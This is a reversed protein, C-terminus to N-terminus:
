KVLHSKTLVSVFRRPKRFSRFKDTSHDDSKEFNGEEESIKNPIDGTRVLIRGEKKGYSLSIEV